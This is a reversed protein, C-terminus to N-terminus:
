YFVYIVSLISNISNNIPEEVSEVLEGCAPGEVLEGCAPGEVLELGNRRM